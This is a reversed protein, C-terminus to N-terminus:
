SARAEHFKFKRPRFLLARAEAAALDLTTALHPNAALRGQRHAYSAAVRTADDYGTLPFREGRFGADRARQVILAFEGHKATTFNPWTM